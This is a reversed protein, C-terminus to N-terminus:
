ITDAFVFDQSKKNKRQGYKECTESRSMCRRGNVIEKRSQAIKWAKDEFRAICCLVVRECGLYWV